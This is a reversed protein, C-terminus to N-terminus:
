SARNGRGNNAPLRAMAELQCVPIEGPELLMSALEGLARHNAAGSVSIHQGMFRTRDTDSHQRRAWCPSVRAFPKRVEKWVALRLACDEPGYGQFMGVPIQALARRLVGLSAVLFGMDDRVKSGAIAVDSPGLSALARETSRVAVTDADWMAVLDNDADPNAPFERATFMQGCPVFGSQLVGIGARIAELRNFYAGQELVLCAGREALMLEGSVYDAAEPDDCCIVAPEWSPLRELWSPL